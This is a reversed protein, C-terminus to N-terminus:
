KKTAELCFKVAGEPCIFEGKHKSAGALLNSLDGGSRVAELLPFMKVMSKSCLGAPCEYECTYTDGIEHGNRCNQPKGDKGVSVVTVAFEYEEAYWKNM